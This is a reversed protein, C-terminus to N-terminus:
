RVGPERLDCFETERHCSSIEWLKVAVKEKETVPGAVKVLDNARSRPTFGNEKVIDLIRKLPSQVHPLTFGSQLVTAYRRCTGDCYM